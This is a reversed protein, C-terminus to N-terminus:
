EEAEMPVVLAAAWVRYARAEPHYECRVAVHPAAEAALQQSMNLQLWAAASKADMRSIRDVWVDQPIERRARIKM